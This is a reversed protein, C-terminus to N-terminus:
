PLCSCFPPRGGTATGDKPEKGVSTCTACVLGFPDIANVPNNFVYRYLNADGAGFGILDEALFRGTAPDYYRARYYYLGSEDDFERGTYTFPQAISESSAEINGYADYDYSNAVAGGADTVKRLSGQHDAQYYFQEGAEFSGSSDLDRAVALPQDVRQGHSYRALLTGLGDYELLIDSADYVYQTLAGNADKEIRRGLGDYRYAAFSLDPFDIRTLQDQADYTYGTVGGTCAGGVKATKSELNGNADYAYCAADDETLRNAIDTVHSASLHSATRNVESDFERGTCAFPQAVGGTDQTIRGYADYTYGQRDATM